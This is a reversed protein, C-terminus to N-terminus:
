LNYAEVTLIGVSYTRTQPDYLSVPTVAKLTSEISAPKKSYLEWVGCDVSNRSTCTKTNKEPYVSAITITKYGLEKFQEKDLVSFATLKATDICSEKQGYESCAIETYHPFSTIILSFQERLYEKNEQSIGENQYRLFFAMGVILIIVFVFVVLITEQVQLQGKKLLSARM